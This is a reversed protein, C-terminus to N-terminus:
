QKGWAYEAPSTTILVSPPILQAKIGEPAFVIPTLEVSEGPKLQTADIGVRILPDRTGLQNLTPLPGTLLLDVQPPNITVTLGNTNGMLEVPRTTVLDGTRAKIQALVTVTRVMQGTNTDLAQVGAPLDLPVLVELPGFAQSMDVPATDVYGNLQALQDPNGQLTVSSPNVSLGSLWYGDPPPGSPIARIGVDRANARQQVPVLIRAQAPELTLGTIEKGDADLAKLTRIENVSTSANALSISTQIKSVQEVLPTPGTLQIQPPNASAEGSMQYAPSLNDRDPLDITVPMTLSVLPVLELDLAPPDVSLIRVQPVGTQVQIQPHYLGPNMNKLSVVSQFSAPRLTPGINSTTQVIASITTPPPTMLTTGPPIDSIRLPINDIRYRRAPDNQEVVFSWAALALLVSVLLLGAYSLLQRLGNFPGLRKLWYPRESRFEPPNFFNFVQERLGASNLPRIMEGRRTVSVEGTEESVVIVLVDSIESLGVAARHRTGLRREAHLPNQTLPLVCGAAVVRGDRIVVAGDHLPTGPYFISQLLEGTVWGEFPVGTKVIEYLPTNGELAILAGTQTRSFYDVAHSLGALVKEAETQRVSRGISTNHGLRELLRRLEPQFIIPIGVLLAILSVRVLWDFVPLPLVITVILLVVGLALAGRLLFGARSNQLLNLLLFFAITVLLLDIGTLWTLEALRFWADAYLSQLSPM